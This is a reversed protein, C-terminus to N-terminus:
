GTRHKGCKGCKGSVSSPFLNPNVEWRRAPRGGTSITRERLWGAAVLRDILEQTQDADFRQGCARRRIDERSVDRSNTVRLWRLVRRAEAHRETLGILRICACAHPWFYDRWLTVAAAIQKAEVTEPEPTVSLGPLGSLTPDLWEMFALVGALRLVQSPDRPGGNM